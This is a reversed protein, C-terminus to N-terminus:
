AEEDLIKRIMGEVSEAEEYGLQRLPEAAHQMLYSQGAWDLMKLDNQQDGFACVKERPIGLYESLHALATGKDTMNFDIWYPGAVAIHFDDEWHEAFYPREADAGNECFAGLKVIDDSLNKFDPVETVINGLEAIRRNFAERGSRLLSGQSTSVLCILGQKEIDEALASAAEPPIYSELLLEDRYFIQAGNTSIFYMIDQVPAFLRQMSSYDRGSAAAFRYGKETLERILPFLDENLRTDGYPLLTGDVDSAIIGKIKVRRDERNEEHRSM